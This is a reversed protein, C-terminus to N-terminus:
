IDRLPRQKATAKIKAITNLAMVKCAEVTRKLGLNEDATVVRAAQILHITELCV